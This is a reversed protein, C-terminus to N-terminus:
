RGKQVVRCIGDYHFNSHIFQREHMGHVEMEGPRESSRLDGDTKVPIIVNHMQRCFQITM